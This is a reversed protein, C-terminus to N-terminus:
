ASAEGEGAAAEVQAGIRPNRPCEVRVGGAPSHSGCDVFELADSSEKERERARTKEKM